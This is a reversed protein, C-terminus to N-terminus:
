EGLWQREFSVQSPQMFSTQPRVSLLDNLFKSQTRSLLVEEHPIDVLNVLAFADHGFNPLCAIAYHKNLPFSYTASTHILPICELGEALAQKVFPNYLTFGSLKLMDILAYVYQLLSVRMM